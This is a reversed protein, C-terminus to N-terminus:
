LPTSHFLTRKSIGKTAYRKKTEVNYVCYIRSNDNATIQHSIKYDLHFTKCLCNGKFFKQWIKFEALALLPNLPFPYPSPIGKHAIEAFTDKKLFRIIYIKEPGIQDFHFEVHTWNLEAQGQLKNATNSKAYYLHTPSLYFYKPELTTKGNRSKSQPPLRNEAM